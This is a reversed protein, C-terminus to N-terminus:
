AEVVVEWGELHVRFGSFNLLFTMLMGLISSFHRQGMERPSSHLEVQVLGVQVVVVLVLLV